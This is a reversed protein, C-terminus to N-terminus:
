VNHSSTKKMTENLFEVCQPSHIIKRKFFRPSNRKEQSKSLLSFLSQIPEDRENLASSPKWGYQHEM